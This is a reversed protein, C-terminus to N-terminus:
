APLPRLTARVRNVVSPFDGRLSVGLLHLRLHQGGRRPWGFDEVPGDLAVDGEEDDELPYVIVAEGARVAGHSAYAVTQYVHGEPVRGLVMGEDEYPVRRYKAEVVVPAPQRLLGDLKILRGDFATPYELNSKNSEFAEGFAARFVSRVYREFLSPMALSFSAFEVRDGPAMSVTRHELLMVCLRHVDRFRENLRTYRIAKAEAVSFRVASVNPLRLLLHRLKGRLIAEGSLQLQGLMQMAVEISYAILQNEPVDASFEVRRTPMVDPRARPLSQTAYRRVLPTGRVSGRVAMEDIRYYRYSRGALFDEIQSAWFALFVGSVDGVQVPLPVSESAFPRPADARDLMRFLDASRVKPEVQVAVWEDGDIFRAAGVRAGAVLYPLGDVEGQLRLNLYSLREGNAALVALQRDTLPASRGYEVLRILRDGLLQQERTLEVLEVVKVVQWGREYGTNSTLPV